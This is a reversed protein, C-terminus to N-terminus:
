FLKSYDYQIDSDVKNTGGVFESFIIQPVTEFHNLDMENARYFMVYDIGHKVGNENIYNVLKSAGSKNIIYGFTGGITLTTDYPIISLSKINSIKEAYTKKHKNYMHFGLYLIDWEGNKELLKNLKNLKFKINGDIEIDDELVLYKDYIPDSILQNWLDYHSLACGIAGRKTGFDNGAFMAHLEPTLVLQQGDVAVYFDCYDILSTDTFLKIMEDKRDPRRLLNVCKIRTKSDFEYFENMLKETENTVYSEKEFNNNHNLNYIVYKNCEEHTEIWKDIENKDNLKQLKNIYNSKAWWGENIINNESQCCILNYDDLQNLCTESNGILFYSLYDTFNVNIQKNPTINMYLINCDNNYKSFLKVLNLTAIDFLQTNKSYNIIKIKSQAMGEFEYNLEEGYNFIYVYDLEDIIYNGILMDIFASIIPENDPCNCMDIFAINDIDLNNNILQNFYKHYKIDNDTPKYNFKFDKHLIRELTPFFGFYELVKQKEMRIIDIRKSWEDNIIACKIINFSKEFDDLDLLIYARPDIYSSLNPCGWYFAVTETLLPEWIKETMFNHEENNEPMFYYKYPSIGVDKNGPPHPGAYGKFKHVNDSNYIDIQVVDDKKSEIFKLFDIRKIHGPDFYKSSCISSLLKTKPFAMTKLDNYTAKLQWFGNNYFKKHSRIQLFKSEDPDAWEGWTKVGWTQQTNGCWPEMHFVITRDKKYFDNQMPKNIIVYFDIDKDDWTIEIDNWRYNGKSMKNWDDCLTKSSCWNCLMKVRFRANKVYLGDSCTGMNLNIFDSEQKIKNKLFGLTNFGACHPDSDCIQKLEMLSRGAYRMDHDTSDKCPYFTYNDFNIHMKNKIQNSIKNYRKTYIYLGDEDGDYTNLKKFSGRNDLNCKLYGMTNFAVCKKNSKCLKKLEELPKPGVCFIDYGVSDMHHFFEFEITTM